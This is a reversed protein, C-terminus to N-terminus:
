HSARQRRASQWSSFALFLSIVGGLINSPEFFFLQIIGDLALAIAIGMYLHKSFPQGVLEYFSTHLYLAVLLYHIAYFPQNTFLSTIGVILFLVITFIYIIRM